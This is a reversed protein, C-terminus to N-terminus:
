EESEIFRQYQYKLQLHEETTLEEYDGVAQEKQCNIVLLTLLVACLLTLANIIIKKM